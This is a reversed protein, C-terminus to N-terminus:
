QHILEYPLKVRIQQEIQRVAVVLARAYRILSDIICHLVATTEDYRKIASDLSNLFHVVGLLAAHIEYDAVMVSRVVAYRVSHRNKVGLAVVTVIGVFM